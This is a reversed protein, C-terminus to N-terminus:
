EVGFDERPRQSTPKQQSDTQKQRYEGRRPYVGTGASPPSLPEPHLHPAPARPLVKLLPVM